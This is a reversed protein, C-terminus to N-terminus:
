SFICPSPSLSGTVEEIWEARQHSIIQKVAHSNPCLKFDVSIFVKEKQNLGWYFFMRQGWCLPKGLACCFLWALLSSSRRHDGGEQVVRYSPQHLSTRLFGKFFLSLSLSLVTCANYAKFSTEPCSVSPMLLLSSNLSLSLYCIM